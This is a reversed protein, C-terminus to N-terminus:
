KPDLDPLNAERVLFLHFIWPSQYYPTCEWEVMNVDLQEPIMSQGM